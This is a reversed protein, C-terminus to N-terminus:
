LVFYLPLTIVFKTGAGENSEVLLSGGMKEIDDKVASIGVGRGSIDTVADKTSLGDVFIMQNLQHTNLVNVQEESLINKEILAKKLKSTIIGRGDDKIEVKFTKNELKEYTIEIKGEENKSNALRDQPNEIGHDMANRLIHTLAAKMLEIIPTDVEVSNVKSFIVRCKKNLKQSLEQVLKEAYPNLGNLSQVRLMILSEMASISANELKTIMQILDKPFNEDYFEENLQRGFHNMQVKLQIIKKIQSQLEDLEKHKVRISESKNIVENKLIPSTNTEANEKFNRDDGLWESQLYNEATNLNTMLETPVIPMPLQIKLQELCSVLYSHINKLLSIVGPHQYKKQNKVLTLFNEAQHVFKALYNYDISSSVGKITHYIRYVENLNKENFPQQLIEDMRHLLEFTEEIFSIEISKDDSFCMFKNKAKNFAAGVMDSQLPKLCSDIAGQSTLDEINTEATLIIFPLQHVKPHRKCWALFELGNIDEMNLDSFIVSPLEDINELYNMAEQASSFTVIKFDGAVEKVMRSSLMLAVRNDDIVLATNSLKM